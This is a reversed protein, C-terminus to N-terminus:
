SGPKTRRDNQSKRAPSPEAARGVSVPFPLYQELNSLLFLLFSLFSCRDGGGLPFLSGPHGFTQMAPPVAKHARELIDLGFKEMFQCCLTKDDKKEEEEEEDDEDEDNDEDDDEDDDEDEDDEGDGEEYGSCCRIILSKPYFSVKWDECIKGLLTTPHLNDEHLDCGHFTVETYAKKLGRHERLVGTTLAQIDKCCVSFNVLDDPSIADIIQSLIENPFTILLSGM